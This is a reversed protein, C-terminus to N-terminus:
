PTIESFAAFQEDPTIYDHTAMRLRRIMLSRLQTDITSEYPVKREHHYFCLGNNSPYRNLTSVRLATETQSQTM